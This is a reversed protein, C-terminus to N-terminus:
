HQIVRIRGGVVNGSRLAENVASEIRAPPTGAIGLDGTIVTIWGTSRATADWVGAPNDDDFHELFRGPRSPMHDIHGSGNPNLHVKYDVVEPFPQNLATALEFGDSLFLQTDLGTPDGAQTLAVMSRPLDILMMAEVPLGDRGPGFAIKLVTVEAGDFDIPDVAAGNAVHSQVCTNHAFNIVPPFNPPKIVLVSTLETRADGPRHCGVCTYNTITARAEAIM